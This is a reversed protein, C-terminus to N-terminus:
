RENAENRNFKFGRTDISIAYLKKSTSIKKPEKSDQDTLIIVRCNKDAITKYEPPIKIIGNEIKTEFEIADM